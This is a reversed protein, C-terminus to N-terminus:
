APGANEPALKQETAAIESRLWMTESLNSGGSQSLLQQLVDKKVALADANAPEAGLAIDLLHMAELPRGDSLKKWARAALASAGGALEVLDADISSRPVGYLSTTSDYHFWGSYEEWITRVAWSVKGHYEGIRLAEPLSIERMLTHVDKGANMGALTADRVYAVAAYMRDLDARIREAGRIPEGHGTILLEAGLNRIRDVSSLYSRVSRPKDGRLTCLFPMSLFVPGFLNGTFAVREQPMWVTLSDTTEGDPTSILEFQRGGQTFAYQSDVIIDPVVEPPPAVPGKRKITSGWLKRSRPGFFPMLQVTDRANGTFRREAILKTEPERLVPVGGFHDAHSQTLIITRLPGSRVPALVAKNREANDMFGTNVLVDGDATTVLYANSIDKAMFIFDTIAVAEVQEDGALVLSALPPKGDKETVSM